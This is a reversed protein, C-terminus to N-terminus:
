VYCHAAHYWDGVVSWCVAAFVPLSFRGGEFSINDARTDAFLPLSRHQSSVIVDMHSFVKNLTINWITYSTVKNV